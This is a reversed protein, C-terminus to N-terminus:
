GCELEAYVNLVGYYRSITSTDRIYPLEKDMRYNLLFYDMDHLLHYMNVVHEVHHTQTALRALDIIQQLDSQLSKNVVSKQYGELEQAFGEADQKNYKLVPMAYKKYFEDETINEEEMVDTISLEGDYGWGTQIEGTQEFCNWLLSNEDSLHAFLNDYIKSYELEKNARKITTCLGKIDDESMGELVVARMKSIEDQLPATPETSTTEPQVTEVLVADQPTETAENSGTVTEPKEETPVTNQLTASASCAMLATAIIFTILFVAMPKKM